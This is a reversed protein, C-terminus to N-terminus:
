GTDENVEDLTTEAPDGLCKHWVDLCILPLADDLEGESPCTLLEMQDLCQRAKSKKLKCSEAKAQVTPGVTALCYDTGDIGDFVLEAPDTCDLWAVCYADVYAPVFEDEPVGCAALAALALWRARM